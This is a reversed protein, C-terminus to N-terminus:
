VCVTSIFKRSDYVITVKQAIFYDMVSGHTSLIVYPPKLKDVNIKELKLKCKRTLSNSMMWLVPNFINIRPVRNKRKM